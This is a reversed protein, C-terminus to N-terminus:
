VGEASSDSRLARAGRALSPLAPWGPRLALAYFGVGVVNLVENGARVPQYDTVLGKAWDSLEGLGFPGVDPLSAHRWLFPIVGFRLLGCLALATALTVLTRRRDDRGAAGLLAAVLIVTGMWYGIGPPPLALRLLVATAGLWYALSVREMWHTPRVVIGQGLFLGLVVLALVGEVFGFAEFALSRDGGAPLRLGCM